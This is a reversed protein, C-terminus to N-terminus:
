IKMFIIPFISYTCKFLDGKKRCFKGFKTGKEEELYCGKRRSHASNESSMDNKMERSVDATEWSPRRWVRTHLIVLLCCASLWYSLMQIPVSIFGWWFLQLRYRIMELSREHTHDAGSKRCHIASRVPLSEVTPPITLGFASLLSM